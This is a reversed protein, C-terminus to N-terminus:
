LKVFRSQGILNNKERIMLYYVGPQFNGIFINQEQRKQDFQLQKVVRGQVDAIAISSFGDEFSVALYDQAPNPYVSLKIEQSIEDVGVASSGTNIRTTYIRKFGFDENSAWPQGPWSIFTQGPRWNFTSTALSINDMHEEIGVYYTGAALQLPNGAMNKVELTLVVGTTDAASFFYYESTGIVSAPAGGVFSYIRVRTTDNESPSNCRFTVSTIIDANPLTYIQGLLGGLSNGIGLAGNIVGNDKAMITDTISFAFSNTDNAPNQDAFGQMVLTGTARYNGISTPTYSGSPSVLANSGALLNSYSGTSTHVSTTGLRVNLNYNVAPISSAGVNSVVAPFSMASIQQDPILTYGPQWKFTDISADYSLQSISDLEYAFLVDSATDQMVGAITFQGPVYSDTIFVGGAIGITPTSLGVDSNVGHIVFTPAGTALNLRVLNATVGGAAQDFAWLFPGGYSLTDLAIGYVGVLTHTTLPISNLVTGTLDVEVIPTGFNSIWFGGAGGNTLPSYTIARSNFGVASMNITSVVLKTVPDVKKVIMTNDAMYLFTGDTTISRVGSTPAGVGPIKFGSILTGNPSLVFLSDKNWKAVWWETGTWAVAAFGSNGAVNSDLMAILQIDWLSATSPPMSIGGDPTANPIFESLNQHQIPCKDLSIKQSYGITVSLVVTSLLLLLQNKM